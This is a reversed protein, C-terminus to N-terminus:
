NRVVEEIPDGKKPKVFIGGWTDCFEDVEIGNVFTQNPKKPCVVARIRYPPDVPVWGRARMEQRHQHLAQADYGSSVSGGKM